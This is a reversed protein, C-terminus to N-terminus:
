ESAKMAEMARQFVWVALERKQRRGSEHNSGWRDIWTLEAEGAEISEITNLLIADLGKKELKDRAAEFDSEVELAFGVKLGQCLSSTEGAIDPNEELEIVPPSSRGDRKLKGTSPEKPRWDAVAATYFVLDAGEIEVKVAALMDEASTVVVPTIGRPPQVDMPGHVLTVIAGLCRAEDALAAGMRGSSRNTLVRVRDISEVTRGATILVKKGSLPGKLLMGSVAKELEDPESMRGTGPEEGPAAMEGEGPGVRIVGRGELTGINAQTAPHEWMSMNMAPAIIVPARAALLATTVLDDAIGASMKAILDATAPAVLVVEAWHPLELHDVEARGTESFMELGVRRGSIAAFTTPHVFRTAARTMMVRVEAGRRILRRVVEVVKYASIGGGIGVLVRRGTLDGGKSIESGRM